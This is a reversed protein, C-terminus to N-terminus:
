SATRIGYPCSLENCQMQAGATDEFPYTQELSHTYARRAHGQQLSLCFLNSLQEAPTQVACDTCSTPPFSSRWQWLARSLLPGCRPRVTLMSSHLVRLLGVMPPPFAEAPRSQGRSTPLPRSPVSPSLSSLPSLGPLRSPKRSMGPAPGLGQPERGGPVQANCHLCRWRPEILGAAIHCQLCEREAHGPM